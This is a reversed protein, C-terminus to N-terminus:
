YNESEYCTTEETLTTENTSPLECDLDIHSPYLDETTIEERPLPLSLDKIPPLPFLDTIGDAVSPLASFSKERLASLPPIHTALNTSTPHSFYEKLSREGKSVLHQLDLWEPTTKLIDNILSWYNFATVFM